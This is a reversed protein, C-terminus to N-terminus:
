DSTRRPRRPPQGQGSGPAAGGGRRGSRRQNTRDNPEAPPEEAPPQAPPQGSRRLNNEPSDFPTTTQFIEDFLEREREVLRAEDDQDMDFQSLITERSIEHSDRLDLLFSAFAADFDLAINKPHFRLKPKTELGDNQDFLPKLIYREVARRLMHRRSELGRAIVKTLKVSDDGTTGTQYAGSILTLYLRGTIRSDLANYREAKITNDLRPTIIEVNLRHDGVIVPLRAVTRVQAQLNAVEAPKAPHADTGKTIVVIFNTGGVLHARDMERLQIKLDLLEFVSRLRVAAFPQYQPRTATHRFVSTPNLLFLKEQRSVGLGQLWEADVNEDAEYPAVILREIAPDSIERNLVREFLAAEKREARYALQEQNFLLSGVPVVKLPDILTIGEPVRLDYTKKRKIGEASKGRVRYTKRGWWVAAVFTSVTFLERWMERLRADLDLDAAIQNYVDEEDADEAFISMRALALSETAELVGSVVDDRDAADYALRMQDFVNAPAVYRDRDFIGGARTRASTRTLDSAWRVMAAVIPHQAMAANIADPTSVETDNEVVVSSGNQDVLIVDGAM